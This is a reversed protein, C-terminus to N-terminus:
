RRDIAAAPMGSRLLSPTVASVSVLRQRASAAADRAGRFDGLEALADAQALEV